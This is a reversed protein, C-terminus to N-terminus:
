LSSKCYSANSHQQYMMVHEPQSTCTAFSKIPVIADYREVGSMSMSSMFCGVTIACQMKISFEIFQHIRSVVIPGISQCFLLM